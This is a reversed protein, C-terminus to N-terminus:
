QGVRIAAAVGAGAEDFAWARFREDEVVYFRWLDALWPASRIDDFVVVGGVKLRPLTNALDRAAGTLSHDGDVNILDLFLGPHEALFSPVTTASDGSILTVDGSHGARTLEQRVFDPGPNEDQALLGGYGFLWLDFGYISCAPAAAGVVCASRGRRMGIELYSKPQLIEAAAALVTTLDAYRWHRGFRAQAWQYFLAQGRSDDTPTLRELVALV